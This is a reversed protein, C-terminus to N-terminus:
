DPSTGLALIVVFNGGGPVQLHVQRASSCFFPYGPGNEELSEGPAAATQMMRYRPTKSGCHQDKTKEM